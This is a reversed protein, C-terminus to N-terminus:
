EKRWNLLEPMSDVIDIARSLAARDGQASALWRTIWDLCAVLVTLAVEKQTAGLEKGEEVDSM